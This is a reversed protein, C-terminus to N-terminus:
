KEKTLAFVSTYTIEYLPDKNARSIRTHIGYRATDKTGGVMYPVFVVSESRIRSRRAAARPLAVSHPLLYLLRHLADTSATPKRARAQRYLSSVCANEFSIACYIAVVCYRTM